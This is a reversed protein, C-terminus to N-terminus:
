ERIKRRGGMAEATTPRFARNEQRDSMKQQSGDGSQSLRESRGDALWNGSLPEARHM